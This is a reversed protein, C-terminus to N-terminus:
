GPLDRVIRGEIERAVEPEGKAAYDDALQYLLTVAHPYLNAARRHAEIAEDIRGLERLVIGYRSLGSFSSPRAALYAELEAASRALQGDVQLDVARRYTADLSEDERRERRGRRASLELRLTDAVLMAAIPLFGALFAALLAWWVTVSADRGLRFPQELLASNIRVLHNAVVAVAIAFVFGLFSRVRM